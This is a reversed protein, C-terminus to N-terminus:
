SESEPLVWRLSVVGGKYTQVEKLEFWKEAVGSPFLAIGEGLVIPIIQIILEDVLTADLCTKLLGAGGVLWISKGNSRRLEDLAAIIDDSLISTDPTPTDLNPNTTVIFVEKGTYPWEVGFGLVEEYTKRGMILTDVDKYFDYYGFDSNDPNPIEELWDVAGNPRAIYGDISTAVYLKIPRM